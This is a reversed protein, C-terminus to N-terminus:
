AGVVEGAYFRQPLPMMHQKSKRKSIRVQKLVDVTLTTTIRDATWPLALKESLYVSWDREVGSM